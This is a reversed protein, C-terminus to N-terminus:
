RYRSWIPLPWDIGSIPAAGCRDRIYTQAPMEFYRYILRSCMLTAAMFAVFFSPSYFPILANFYSFCLAILLQLPFHILYSSYTLSGAASIIHQMRPGANLDSAACYLLTPIYAMLAFHVVYKPVSVELMYVTIPVFVAVGLSLARLFRRYRTKELHQLALASLGGSYFFGLCDLIPLDIRMKRALVCLILIGINLVPSTGVCRVTVFFFAYVLVEVSISWIPGNFSYVREFGWNSAFFLHLVFHASDNTPNVFYYHHYQFYLVQLFAVLLLTALHLPYLRSFRLVFFQRGSVIKHAIPGGYKGLFIFGSVCWFFQVGYFGYDYFVRLISYFPQQAAVFATSNYAVFSFHQYHWVLVAFASM